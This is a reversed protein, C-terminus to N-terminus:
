KKKAEDEIIRFFDDSDDIRKNKSAPADFRDPVADGFEPEEVTPREVEEVPRTKRRRDDTQFGALEMLSKHKRRDAMEEELVMKSTLVPAVPDYDITFYHTALGLEDDPMIGAEASLRQGNLSTGNTSGLDRVHWVHNILRLVCHRSSVNEFDLRIDCTPRRGIILEEKLLPIPDGGGLPRMIGLPKTEAAM